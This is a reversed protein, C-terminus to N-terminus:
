PFIVLALQRAPRWVTLLDDARVQRWAGRPDAILFLRRAPNVGAVVDYHGYVRGHDVGVLGLIVPRRQGLEHMLDDVTGEILFANLGHHLAVERLRGAAVGQANEAPGIAAALSATTTTPQWYEIVTALAAVGCDHRGRQAVLKLDPVLVWGPDTRLAEPASGPLGVLQCGTVLLLVAAGRGRM